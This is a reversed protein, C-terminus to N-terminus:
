PCVKNFHVNDRITQFWTFPNLAVGARALLQGTPGAVMLGLFGLAVHATIWGAIIWAARDVFLQFQYGWGSTVEVLELAQKVNDAEQAIREKAAKDNEKKADALAARLAVVETSGQDLLVKGTKTAEPKAADILQGTTEAHADAKAISTATAPISNDINSLHPRAACSTMSLVLFFAGLHLWQKAKNWLAAAVISALASIGAFGILAKKQNSQLKQIAENQMRDSEVLPRVEARVADVLPTVFHKQFKEADDLNDLDLPM